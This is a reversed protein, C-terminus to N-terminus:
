QMYRSEFEALPQDSEDLLTLREGAIGFKATRGLTQLFEQEQEMGQMCARMTVAMNEAFSLRNKDTTYSGTFTNCGAFGRVRNEELTLVMFVEKDDAGIEAERGSIKMLKWYTNQLPADAAAMKQREVQRVLIEVPADADGAFPDISETNTFLLRGGHEIRARVAYRMREKIKAPDYRLEVSYPPSKVDDLTQYAIIESPADMKSVDELTVTLSSGPPLMMKERYYVSAALTKMDQNQVQAQATEVATGGGAHLPGAPVFFLLLCCAAPVLQSLARFPSKEM